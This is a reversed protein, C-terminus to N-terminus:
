LSYIKINIVTIVTITHIHFARRLEHIQVSREENTATNPFTRSGKPHTYLRGLPLANGSSQSQPKVAQQWKRLASTMDSTAKWEQWTCERSPHFIGESVTLGLLGKRWEIAEWRANQWLLSGLLYCFAFVYFLQHGFPGPPLQEAYSCRLSFCM